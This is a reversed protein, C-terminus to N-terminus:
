ADAAHSQRVFAAEVDRLRDKGFFLDAVREGPGGVSRRRRHRARDRVPQRRTAPGSARVPCAAPRHPGDAPLAARPRPRASHDRFSEDGHRGPVWAGIDVILRSSEAIPIFDIPPVMGRVPHNGRILAECGLIAQTDLEVLPQYHLEFEGNVFAHRLDRDFRQRAEVAETMGVEFRRYTASGESKALSLAIDAAKLLDDATAADQPFLAAGISVAHPLGRRRARVAEQVTRQIVSIGGSWAPPAPRRAM